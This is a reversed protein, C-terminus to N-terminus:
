LVNEPMKFAVEIYKLLFYGRGLRRRVQGFLLTEQRITRIARIQVDNTPLRVRAM